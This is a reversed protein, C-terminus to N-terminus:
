NAITQDKVINELYLKQDALKAEIVDNVDIHLAKAIDGIKEDPFSCLEREASSVYQGNKYGLERALTAQSPKGPAKERSEKILKAMHPFRRKM